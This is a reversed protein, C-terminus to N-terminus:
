TGAQELLDQIFPDYLHLTTEITEHGPRELYIEISDRNGAVSLDVALEGGGALDWELMLYGDPHLYISPEPLQSLLVRYRESFIKLLAISIRSLRRGEGFHAGEEVCLFQELRKTGNSGLLELATPGPDEIAKVHVPPHQQWGREVRYHRVTELHHSNFTSADDHPTVLM